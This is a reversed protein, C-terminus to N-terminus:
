RQETTERKGTKTIEEGSAAALALCNIKDMTETMTTAM